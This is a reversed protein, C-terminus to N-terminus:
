QAEKKPLTFSVRTGRGPESQAWIKGNHLEIIGKAISLGLGTGKPTPGASRDLQRFKDFIRSLDEKRIGRGTDSISCEIEAGKDVASIEVYGKETFKLANSLLNTFVQTIRDRDVCVEISEDPYNEKLELGKSRAQPAYFVAIEKVLPVIDIKEAKLEIMNTDIKSMDLFDNIMRTLRDVEGLCLSLFEQQKETTKGLIGDLTQAITARITTLPTRLEHSVTDILEDKLQDLKKRETIDRDIGRYGILQGNEDFLPIASTELVVLRGNKHRNVNELSYFAEKKTEKEKFIKDIKETEEESMFDFPTKGLVESTEYGLLDKVKPSVYTYVGKSNTEWIWDTTTETLDKFKQESAVLAREARKHAAIERSVEDRSATTEKLHIAMSDFARSLQGIEDKADTGVKYEFNGGGIIEAGMHLKDIPRSIIRSVFLGLGWAALPVVILIAIFGYKLRILPAFAEKEDIEAMLHWQMQPIYHHVGLVRVGRYDPFVYVKKEGPAYAKDERRLAQRLNTTDVKQNLISDERFKSPSIMYANKNVLYIEGTTGLGTRDLTIKYLQNLDIDVVLAGLIEGNSSIPAVIDLVPLGSADSARVNRIILGDATTTAIIESLKDSGTFSADTSIVVAGAKDMLSIKAITNHVKVSADVKHKIKKLSENYEPTNKERELVKSPVIDATLLASAQKHGNLFTEIHDARSQAATKLHSIVTNKIQNRAIAYLISGAVIVLITSVVIFSLSIKHAIKM